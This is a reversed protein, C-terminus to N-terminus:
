AKGGKVRLDESSKIVRAKPVNEPKVPADIKGLGFTRYPTSNDTTNKTKKNM